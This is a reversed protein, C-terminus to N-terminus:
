DLEIGLAGASRLRHDSTFIRGYALMTVGFTATSVTAAIMFVIM